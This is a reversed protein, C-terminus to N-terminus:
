SSNQLRRSPAEGRAGDVVGAPVGFRHTEHCWELVFPNSPLGSPTWSSRCREIMVRARFRGPAREDLLSPASRELGVRWRTATAGVVSSTAPTVLLVPTAHAKAVLSLRRAATLDVDDILGVVVSATGSKVAEEMAWLVHSARGTEVQLIACPDVGLGVLGRGYLGGVEHNIARSSCWVVLPHDAASNARLRCAVLRLAFGQAFARHAAVGGGQVMPKIEHVGAPDLVLPRGRVTVGLSWADSLDADIKCAAKGAHRVEQPTLTEVRQEISRVISRLAEIENSRAVPAVGPSVHSRTCEDAGVLARQRDLGVASRKMGSQPMLSQQVGKISASQECRLRDPELEFRLRTRPCNQLSAPAPDPLPFYPTRVTQDV